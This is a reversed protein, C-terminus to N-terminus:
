SLYVYLFSVLFVISAALYALVRGIFISYISEIWLSNELNADLSKGIMPDIYMALIIAGIGHFATSFQSMTMRYEPILIALSFAFFFGTSLFFYALVSTIIKKFSLSRIKPITVIDVQNSKIRKGFMVKVIAVPITNSKYQIFLSQFQLQFYNFNILVILSTFFAAIALSFSIVLFLQISISSEIMFSLSILLPPLLFRSATFISYQLTTGLSLNNTLKGAVRSGFSVTEVFQMFTYCFLAILFFYIM